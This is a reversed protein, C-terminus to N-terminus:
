ELRYTLIVGDKGAIFLSGDVVVPGAALWDGMDMQWLPQGTLADVAYLNPDGAAVYYLTQGAVV